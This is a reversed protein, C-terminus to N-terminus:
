CVHVRLIIYIWANSWVTYCVWYVIYCLMLFLVLKIFLAASCLMCYLDKFWVNEFQDWFVQKDRHEINLM